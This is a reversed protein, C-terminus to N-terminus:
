TGKAKKVALYLAGLGTILTPINKLIEMFEKRGSSSEEFRERLVAGAIKSEQEKAKFVAELTRLETERRELDADLVQQRKKEEDREREFLRRERENNQEYEAKERKYENDQTVLRHKQDEIDRKYVDQPNGLTRAENFTTYFLGLKEAEEFTYYESRPLIVGNAGNAPIPSTLYVGDGVESDIVSNIQYVEGALNVFRPGFKGQPDVIRIRYSLGSQRQLISDTGELLERVGKISYPHKPAYSPNLASLTLDVNQLYLVDGNNRFDERTISYDLSSPTRWGRVIREDSERFLNKELLEAEKSSTRGQDNLLGHTDVKVQLGFLYTSRIVFANLKAGHLPPIIIQVGARNVVTIPCALGNYFEYGLETQAPLQGIRITGPATADPIFNAARPANEHAM